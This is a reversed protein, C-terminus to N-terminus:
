ESRKIAKRIVDVPNIVMQGHGVALLSPNLELIKKASDVASSKHWTAWAPFPFWINLQGSIAVGGRTQLADGAILIRNRTDLFVMSGPTHGPASLALLSGIRDGDSLLVDPKTQIKSPVSGRIPVNPEGAILSKDGALLQADRQSIYVPVNPLAQKLQDLGGVHDEHAHTLIIRQIPKGLNSATQLISKSSFSMGTDILTLGDEEDVFYCNFPFFLPLFTLQHVTQNSTIKM